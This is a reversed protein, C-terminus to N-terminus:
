NGALVAVATRCPEPFRRQALNSGRHGAGSPDPVILRTQSRKRSATTPTSSFSGSSLRRRFDHPARPMIRVPYTVHPKSDPLPSKPRAAKRQRAEVPGLRIGAHEDARTAIDLLRQCAGADQTVAAAKRRVTLAM